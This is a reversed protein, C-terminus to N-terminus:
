VRRNRAMRSLRRHIAVLDPQVLSLEARNQGQFVLVLSQSSDNDHSILGFYYKQVSSQLYHFLEFTDWHLTQMRESGAFASHDATKRVTLQWYPIEGFYGLFLGLVHMWSGQWANVAYIM